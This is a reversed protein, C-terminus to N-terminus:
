FINNKSFISMVRFKYTRGLKNIQITSRMADGINDFRMAKQPNKTTTTESKMYTGNGDTIIWFKIQQYDNTKNDM